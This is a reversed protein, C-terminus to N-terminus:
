LVCRCWRGAAITFNDRDCAVHAFPARAQTPWASMTLVKEAITAITRTRVFEVERLREGSDM